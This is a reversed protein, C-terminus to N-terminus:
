VMKNENAIEEHSVTRDGVAAVVVAGAAVVVAHAEESAPPAVRSVPVLM